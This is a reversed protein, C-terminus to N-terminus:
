VIGDVDEDDDDSDENINDAVNEVYYDEVTEFDLADAGAAEAQTIAAMHFAFRHYDGEALQTMKKVDFQELLASVVPVNQQQKAEGDKNLYGMAVAKANEFSLVDTLKASISDWNVDELKFAPKSPKKATTKKAATKKATPKKEASETTQTDAEATDTEASKTSKTTAKTTSGSDLNQLNNNLAVLNANLEGLLAEISM